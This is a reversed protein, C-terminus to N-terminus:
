FKEALINIFINQFIRPYVYMFSRVFPFGDFSMSANAMGINIAFISWSVDLITSVLITPYYRPPFARARTPAVVVSLLRIIPKKIPIATDYIKIIIAPSTAVNKYSAHAAASLASPSVTVGSTDLESSITPFITM